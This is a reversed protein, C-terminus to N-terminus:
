HMKLCYSCRLLSALLIDRARVKCNIYQRDDFLMVDIRKQSVKLMRLIDMLYWYFTVGNPGIAPAVIFSCVHLSCSAGELRHKLKQLFKVFIRGATIECYILCFVSGNLGMSNQVGNPTCYRPNCQLQLYLFLLLCGELRHM